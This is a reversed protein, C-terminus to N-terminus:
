LYLFFRQWCDNTDELPWAVRVVSALSKSSSQCPLSCPSKVVRPDQDMHTDMHGPVARRYLFKVTKNSTGPSFVRTQINDNVPSIVRFIVWALSQPPIFTESLSYILFRVLLFALSTRLTWPASLFQRVSIRPLGELGVRPCRRFLEPDGCSGWVNGWGVWGLAKQCCDIRKWTGFLTWKVKRCSDM